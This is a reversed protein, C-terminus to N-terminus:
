KITISHKFPVLGTIFLHLGEGEISGFHTSYIEGDLRDINKHECKGPGVEIVDSGLIYRAYGDELFYEDKEFGNLVGDLKGGNRFCLELTVEVNDVGDIDFDIRYTNNEEKIRISSELTLKTSPRSNFDM